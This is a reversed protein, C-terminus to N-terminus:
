ERKGEYQALGVGMLPVFFGEHLDQTRCAVESCLYYRLAKGEPVMRRAEAPAFGQCYELRDRFEMTTIDLGDAPLSVYDQPLAPPVALDGPPAEHYTLVTNGEQSRLFLGGLARELDSRSVRVPGLGGSGELHVALATRGNEPGMSRITAWLYPVGIEARLDSAEWDRSSDANLGAGPAKGFQVMGIGVLPATLHSGASVCSAMGCVYYRLWTGALVEPRRRSLSKQCVLSAKYFPGTVFDVGAAPVLSYDTGAPVPAGGGASQLSLIVPEGELTRMAFDGIAVSNDLRSVEVPGLGRSEVHLAVNLRGQELWMAKVTCWLHPATAEAQLDSPTVGAITGHPVADPGGAEPEGSDCAACVVCSALVIGVLCGAANRGM